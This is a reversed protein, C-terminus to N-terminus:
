QLVYKMPPARGLAIIEMKAQGLATVRATGVGSALVVHPAARAGRAGVEGAATSQMLISSLKLSCKFLIMFKSIIVFVGFM